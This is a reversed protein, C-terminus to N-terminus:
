EGRCERFIERLAQQDPGSLGRSTANVDGLLFAIDTEQESHCALITNQQEVLETQDRMLDTQKTSEDGLWLVGWVIATAAVVASLTRLWQQVRGPGKVSPKM